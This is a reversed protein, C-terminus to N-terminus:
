CFLHVFCPHESSTYSNWDEDYMETGSFMRVGGFYELNTSSNAVYIQQWWKPGQPCHSSSPWSNLSKNKLRGLWTVRFEQASAKLLRKGQAARVHSVLWLLLLWHILRRPKRTGSWDAAAPERPTSAPSAQWRLGRGPTSLCSVLKVGLVYISREHRMFGHMTKVPQDGPHPGLKDMNKYQHAIKIM